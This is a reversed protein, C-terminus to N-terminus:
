RADNNYMTDILRQIIDMDRSSLTRRQPIDTFERFDNSKKPRQNDRMEFSRIEDNWRQGGNIKTVMTRSVGFFDAIQQHTWDGTSLLQKIIEAKEQTLKGSSGIM